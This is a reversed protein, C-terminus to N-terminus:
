HSGGCGDIFAHFVSNMDVSFAPQLLIGTRSDYDITSNGIIMQTSEIVGNIEYDQSTSQTGQLANQGAFDATPCFSCNIQIDFSGFTTGSNTWDGVYIYYISDPVFVFDFIEAVGDGFTRSCLINTFSQCDLSTGLAVTIDYEIDPTVIIEATGFGTSSYEYWVGVGTICYLADGNDTAGQTTEQMLLDGCNLVTADACVNNSLMSNCSLEIDFDFYTMVAPSRNGIYIYYDMGQQVGFLLSDNPNTSLNVGASSFSTCNSSTAAVIAFDETANSVRVVVTETVEATFTYWIGLGGFNGLPSNRISGVTSEGFLPSNCSLQTASTCDLNSAPEYCVLSLDFDFYETVSSSTNGIFIYYDVNAEALFTSEHLNGVSVFGCTLRSYNMCDATSIIAYDFSETSNDLILRITTSEIANYSYWVGLGPVCGPIGTPIEIAGVTSESLLVDGCTLETAGTCTANAAPVYCQLSFDFTGSETGNSNDGIYIFYSKGIEPQFIYSLSQGMTVSQCNLREFVVCDASSTVQYFLDLDANSITIEHADTTSATFSYWVGVGTNCNIEPGNDTSAATSEAILVTGCSITTAGDCVDNIPPDLCEIELDFTGTSTGTPSFDGVVMYYTQGAVGPFVMKQDMGNNALVNCQLENFGSCGNGEVIAVRFNISPNSFTMEITASASPSFSYWVGVGINCSSFTNNDVANATSEGILLEGCSLVTAGNCDVNSPPVLCDVTIDFSGTDTGLEDNDGIYIYYVKGAEALFVVKKPINRNGVVCQLNNFNNCAIGEALNIEFIFDSVITLEITETTSAVFTYWVGLGTACGLEDANDVANVSTQNTLTSGCSLVTATSCIVNSPAALCNISLDFTGTASGTDRFDGIYIFYEKGMEGYFYFRRDTGFSSRCKVNNFNACATGEAISVEYFYTSNEIVIEFTSSTAPQIKYWVGPGMPCGLVDGNDSANVTTQGTLITGCTLITSSQCTDNGPQAYISIANLFCLCITTSLLTRMICIKFASYLSLISRIFYEYITIKTSKYKNIWNRILQFAHFQNM